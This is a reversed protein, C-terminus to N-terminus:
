SFIKEFKKHNAEISVIERVRDINQIYEDILIKTKSYDESLKIILSAVESTSKCRIGIRGNLNNYYDVCDNELFIVPKRYSLAEYISGSCSLQYRNKEYLILFFDIDEILEEMQIRKLTKGNSPAKLFEVGESGRNDMGVIRIEFLYTSTKEKISNTVERLRIWNGYGFVAIKLKVNNSKFHKKSLVVPMYIGKIDIKNKSLIKYANEVIYPSLAVFVIGENNMSLIIKENFLKQSIKSWFELYAKIKGLLNIYVIKVGAFLSKNKLGMLKQIMTKSPVNVLEVGGLNGGLNFELNKIKELSGHLVIAIKTRNSIRLYNKIKKLLWLFSSDYSLFLLKIDPKLQIMKLLFYIQFFYLIFATFSGAKGFNIKKYSLKEIIIQDNLLINKIAGIHSDHAYFVIEEDPYELSLSYLFGSNVKEHSFNRCLPECVVIM